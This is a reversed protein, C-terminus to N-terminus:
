RQKKAERRKAWWWNLTAILATVGILLAQRAHLRTFAALCTIIAFLALGRGLPIRLANPQPKRARLRILAACTGIYVILLAGAGLASIWLYAGTVALLWIFGAFLVIAAAPTSFRLHLKGFFAPADGQAALSCALRPINLISGCLWGYTSIMVAVSVFIDGGGGLLVSAADALPRNTPIAGVTAVTVFQLLTYIIVCGLLGTLLAFPITRRTDKVEGTPILPYEFGGYAFTLLLLASLWAGWGPRTVDNVQILEFHRGFRAVGLLILVALPTLKTVTLVNTLRAGSRVGVYNAFTPIGILVILLLVRHIGHGVLPFFAALYLIFLSANAAGGACASLLSFWGAQMGAFRGFATRAYLYAGGPESFQSAVEAFCAAIAATVLGAAVMSIPSARGVLRTVEAPLGFIGGGIISNIVLATMTWRGIARVFPM